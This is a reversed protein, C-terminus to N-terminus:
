VNYKKRFADPTLIPVGHKNATEIKSTGSEIDPTILAFTNSSVSSSLNAGINKLITELEKDRGGSMVISKKYLPHDQNVTTQKPESNNIKSMLGCDRMFEIFIPINEVFTQATKSAVGKIKSLKNIKSQNDENSTLIDPYELMILDIKKESFGRGITNSASIINVLSANEIKDRIGNYIKDVMKDKFGDVTLLDAKSMKIIKPITDFGADIIRAINGGGLGDVGIGKFFGTINKERVTEDDDKNELMIDVHKENWIYPVTPMLGQDAPVIVSKIYPIVDGSRIIQILSGVGIKNKEIFLGNFGTAYEITVGGLKVPEMRVRPKLYGDKSANWEVDLVKTEAMQESLVMKFAFSHDPNGSTRPYIQNNSVILGDIEYEYNARWDLLLESLKDNTIDTYTENRVTNFGNDSLFKMQESPKLSPRIVEYAVFDMDKITDTISIRNVIGAILNRGNAYKNSYKTDFTSKSMIFEGRVVIDSQTPLKLHPIFHSIDQGIKGDGRTYLKPTKNDTTYLGSVGDLKCSIVYDGKYKSKWSPLAKTDPKIKDMSAMEYPLKVKNKEVPAGIKGIVTNKPYKQKIYDELIDYQNDTLLPLDDPGLNRYVENSKILMSNLTKENLKELVNIGGEKFHQISNLITDEDVIKKNNDRKKRTKNEKEKEKEEKEKEEDTKKKKLILIQEKEKKQIEKRELELQKIREKEQKDENSIMKKRTKKTTSDKGKQNCKEKCERECKQQETEIKKNDIITNTLISEISRGDKRDEPNKYKMKLFDFISAENEFRQEIKAGKQKGDMKYMGHENLSYGMALARGRMVTNFIKSGTFYLVAFPYEEPTTYLFDVRRANNETPLKAIVLSKTPGRSLIELIIGKELLSDIFRKFVDRNQSTIIVDIDGSSKVNRRYSGVIEYKTDVDKTKEYTNNFIKNYEDIESRPIRLLIDEYYKLGVQQITNLHEDQNQRLQDITTIGKDILDKAKKPGIGYIETFIHYPDARERELVRLTGTKIYEDIKAIVNSGIGPLSELDRYNESTIDGQYMVITEQAKQYARAKFPEGRKVMFRTLEDFVSILKDNMRNEYINNDQSDKKVSRKKKTVRIKVIKGKGLVMDKIKTHNIEQQEVKNDLDLDM